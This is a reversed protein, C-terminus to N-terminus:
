ICDGHDWEGGHRLLPSVLVAHDYTPSFCLCGGREYYAQAFLAVKCLKDVDKVDVEESSSLRLTLGERQPSSVVPRAESWLSRRQIQHSLFFIPARGDEYGGGSGDAIGVLVAMEGGWRVRALVALFAPSPDRRLSLGRLALMCLSLRECLPCDVGDLALEAHGLASWVRVIHIRLLSSCM